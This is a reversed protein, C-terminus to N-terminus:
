GKMKRILAKHPKDMKRSLEQCLPHTTDGKTFIDIGDVCAKLAGDSQRKGLMAWGAALLGGVGPVLGLLAGGADALPYPPTVDYSRDERSKTDTTQHREVTVQTPRITIQGVPTDAVVPGAKTVIREVEVERNVEERTEGCGGLLSAAVFLACCVVAFVLWDIVKDGSIKM